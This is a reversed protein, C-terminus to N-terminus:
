NASNDKRKWDIAATATAIFSSIDALNSPVIMTNNEKALKGFEQVYQEAIRLSVADKGGPSNIAESVIRLGMATAEAV